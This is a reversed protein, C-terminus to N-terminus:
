LQQFLITLGHLSVWLRFPIKESAIVIKHIVEAKMVYASGSCYDPYLDLEYDDESVYWKDKPGRQPGNGYMSLGRYSKKDSKLQPIIDDMVNFINVFIDDDVKLVFEINPHYCHQDAWKYIMIHKYSLNKYTDMFDGVVIDSYNASEERLLPEVFTPESTGAIGMFFVVKLNWSKYSKLGGYTERIAERADFNNRATHVAILLNTEEACLNHPDLLYKFKTLNLLPFFEELEYRGAAPAPETYSYSFFYCFCAVTIVLGLLVRKLLNM